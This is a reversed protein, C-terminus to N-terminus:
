VAMEFAFFFKAPIGIDVHHVLHSLHLPFDYRILVRNSFLNAFPHPDGELMVVAIWVCKGKHEQRVVREGGLLALVGVLALAKGWGPLGIFTDEIRAM